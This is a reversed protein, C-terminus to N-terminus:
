TEQSRRRARLHDPDEARERENERKEHKDTRAAVCLDLGLLAGPPSLRREEPYTLYVFYKWDRM